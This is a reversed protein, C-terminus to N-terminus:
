HLRLKENRLNSFAAGRPGSSTLEDLTAYYIKPTQEGLFARELAQIRESTPKDRTVFLVGSVDANAYYKRFFPPYRHGYKLSREYELPLFLTDEQLKLGVIADPRLRAIERLAPGDQCPPGSKIVNEPLYASVQSLKKLCEGIELLDLDHLPSASQYESRLGPDGQSIFKRFGERSLSYTLRGGLERLYDAQLLGIRILLNLRKYIAQHSIGPYIDRAIQRSTAVKYEYLYHFLRLDIDRIHLGLRGAKPL